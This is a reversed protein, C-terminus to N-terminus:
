NVYFSKGELDLILWEGGEDQPAKGQKIELGDLKILRSARGLFMLAGTLDPYAGKVTIEFSIPHVGFNKEKVESDVLAVPQMRVSSLELQNDRAANELAILLDRLSAESPLSAEVYILDGEVQKYTRDLATLASIKETLKQDVEQHDKIKKRLQAITTTTPRIAFVGFFSATLLSLILIGYAKVKRSKLAPTIIRGYRRYRSTDM